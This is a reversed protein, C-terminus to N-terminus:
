TEYVKSVQQSILDKWDQLKFINIFLIYLIYNQPKLFITITTQSCFDCLIACGKM